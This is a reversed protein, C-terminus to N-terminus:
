APLTAPPALAIDAPADRDCALRGDPTVTLETVHITSRRRNAGPAPERGVPREPHTFYFLWARGSNVVVDAHNGISGDDPGSGARALLNEGPQRTWTGTDASRYVSLGAWEDIIMWYADAFRFVKPGEGPRRDPLTVLGRDTWHFLDPSEALNISKGAREDNYWMRWLGSSLRHVCADIVRDSTLSLTSRYTWNELDPSTLHVLARPHQWDTFVDPVVSLYMHYTATAHDFVIEPAWHTVGPEAGLDAPLELAATRLYSWTAGSDRSEAIGLRTGHIWAIDPLSADNARRNTYFMWWTRTQHNWIVVPDAAGDHVPDRFLPRSAPM